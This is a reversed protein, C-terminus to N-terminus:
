KTEELRIIGYTTHIFYGATDFMIKYWKGYVEIYKVNDGPYTM